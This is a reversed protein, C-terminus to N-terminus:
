PLQQGLFGATRALWQKLVYASREAFAIFLRDDEASAVTKRRLICNRRMDFSHKIVHEAIFLIVEGNADVIIHRM